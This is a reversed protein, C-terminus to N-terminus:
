HINLVFGIYTINLIFFLLLQGGREQSFADCAYFANGSSILIIIERSYFSVTFNFQQQKMCVCKHASDTLTGRSRFTDHPQIM